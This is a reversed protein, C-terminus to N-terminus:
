QPIIGGIKEERLVWDAKTYEKEGLIVSEKDM